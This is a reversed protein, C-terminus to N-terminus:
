PMECASKITDKFVAKKFAQEAINVQEPSLGKQSHHRNLCNHWAYGILDLKAYAEEDQSKESRYREMASIRFSNNGLAEQQQIRELTFDRWAAQISDGGQKLPTLYQQCVAPAVSLANNIDLYAMLGLRKLHYEDLIDQRLKQKFFMMDFGSSKSATTLNRLQQDLQLYDHDTKDLLSSDLQMLDAPRYPSYSPLNVQTLRRLIEFGDDINQKSILAANYYGENECLEDSWQYPTLNASVSTQTMIMVVSLVFANVYLKM